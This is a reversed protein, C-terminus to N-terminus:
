RCNSPLLPCARRISWTLRPTRRGATSCLTPVGPCTLVVTKGRVFAPLHRQGDTTFGRPLQHDATSLGNGAYRFSVTVRGDRYTARHPLPGSPLITKGYVDHLAWRALRQGVTRKDTPHVDRRAGVDSSVAMGVHAIEDALKRQENRFWPWYRAAYGATDISSLQDLRLQARLSAVGLVLTGLVTLALRRRLTPLQSFLISIM